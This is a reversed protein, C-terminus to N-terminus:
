IDFIQFILDCLDNTITRCDNNFFIYLNNINHYIILFKKLYTLINPYLKKNYSILDAQTDTLEVNFILHFRGLREKLKIRKKINKEIDAEEDEFENSNYINTFSTLLYYKEGDKQCSLNYQQAENVTLTFARSNLEESISLLTKKM